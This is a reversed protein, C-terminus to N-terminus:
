LGLGQSPMILDSIGEKGQVYKRERYCIAAIVFLNALKENQKKQLGYFQAGMLFFTHIRIHSVPAKENANRHSSPIDKKKNMKIEVDPFHLM